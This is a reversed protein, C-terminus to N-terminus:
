NAALLDFALNLMPLYFFDEDDMGDAGLLVSLCDLILPGCGSIFGFDVVTM